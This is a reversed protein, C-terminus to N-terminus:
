DPPEKARGHAGTQLPRGITMQGHCRSVMWHQLNSCCAPALLVKQRRCSVQPGYITAALCSHAQEYRPNRQTPRLEDRNPRKNSDVADLECTQMSVMGALDSSCVDSSWDSIRMGYATKQKFFFFFFFLM